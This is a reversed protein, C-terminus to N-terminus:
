RKSGLSTRLIDRATSFVSMALDHEHRIDAGRIMEAEISVTNGNPSPEQGADMARGGSPGPDSAAIHRSRTTRLDIGTAPAEVMEAFTPLDKARFGPTDANAVNRATLTQRQSAHSAMAHATKLVAISDFM